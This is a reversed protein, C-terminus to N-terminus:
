VLKDGQIYALYDAFDRYQTLEFQILKAGRVGYEDYDNTLEVCRLYQNKYEIVDGINIRYLSKCYFNYSREHTNGKRDQNLRLGTSQLSGRIIQKTFSEHRIGYEDIQSYDNVVYIDYDFSFEEIADYFYTPDIVHNQYNSM